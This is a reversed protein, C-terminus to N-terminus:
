DSKNKDNSNVRLYTLVFSIKKGKTKNGKSNTCSQHDIIKNGTSHEAALNLLFFSHKFVSWSCHGAFPKDFKDSGFLLREAPEQEAKTAAVAHFGVVDGLFREDLGIQSRVAIHLVILKGSPEELNAVVCKDVVLTLGVTLEGLKIFRERAPNRSVRSESIFVKVM